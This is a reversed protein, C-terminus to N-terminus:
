IQVLTVRKARAWAVVYHYLFDLSLLVQICHAIIVHARAARSGLETAGVSWFALGCVRSLAQLAIYHSTMGEVEGGIKVLMWLQPLSAVTDLNVSIAWMMDFFPSRDLSGRVLAALAICPIALPKIEMTDHEELYTARHTTYISRLVLVAMGLSLIDAVEYLKATAAPAYGGGPCLLTSTLRACTAVVSLEISRASIGAVNKQMEIKTLLQYFSLANLGASLTLLVSYDLQSWCSLVRGCLLLLAALAASSASPGSARRAKSRDLAVDVTEASISSTM